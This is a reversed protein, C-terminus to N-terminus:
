SGFAVAQNACHPTMGKLQIYVGDADPHKEFSESIFASIEAASAAHVAQFPWNLAEVATLGICLEKGIGRAGGTVLAVKGSLLSAISASESM